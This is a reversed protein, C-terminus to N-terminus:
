RKRPIVSILFFLIYRYLFRDIYCIEDELLSTTITQRYWRKKVVCDNMAGKEVLLLKFNKTLSLIITLNTRCGPMSCIFAFQCWEFNLCIQVVIFQRFVIYRQAMQGFKM